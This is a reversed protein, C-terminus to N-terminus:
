EEVEIEKGCYPCYKLADTRNDPIRWYPSDVNHEKPCVTRYDYKIWKCKEKHSNNENTLEQMSEEFLKRCCDDGEDLSCSICGNRKACDSKTNPEKYEANFWSTYILIPTGTGKTDIKIATFTKDVGVIEIYRFDEILKEGNTM